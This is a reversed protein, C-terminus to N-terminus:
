SLGLGLVLGLSLINKYRFLRLLTNARTPLLCGDDSTVQHNTAVSSHYNAAHFVFRTYKSQKGWMEILPPVHIQVAISINM